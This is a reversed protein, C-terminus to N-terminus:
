AGIGTFVALLTAKEPARFVDDKVRQWGVHETADSVIELGGTLPRGEFSSNNNKNISSSSVGGALLAFDRTVSVRVYGIAFASSTLMIVLAIIIEKMHVDYKGISYYHDLRSAWTTTDDNM